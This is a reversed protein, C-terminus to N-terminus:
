PQQGGGDGYYLCCRGPCERGARLFIPPGISSANLRSVAFPTLDVVLKGTLHEVQIHPTDM